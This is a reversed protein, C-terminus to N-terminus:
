NIKRESSNRKVNLLNVTSLNGWNKDSFTNEKVKSPYNWKLICFQLNNNTKEKLVIFIESWDRRAQKTQSSFESTIRIRSARYTLSKGGRAETFVTEKPKSKRYNSYATGLQLDKQDKNHRTNESCKSRNNSKQWENQSIDAM